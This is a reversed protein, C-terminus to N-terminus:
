ANSYIGDVMGTFYADWAWRPFGKTNPEITDDGKSAAILGLKYFYKKGGHKNKM